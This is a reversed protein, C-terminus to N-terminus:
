TKPNPGNPLYGVGTLTGLALVMDGATHYGIQRLGGALFVLGVGIWQKHAHIFDLIKSM